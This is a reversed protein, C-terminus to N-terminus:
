ATSLYLSLGRTATSLERRALDRGMGM